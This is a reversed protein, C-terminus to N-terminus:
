GFSISSSESSLEHAWLQRSLIRHLKQEMALLTLAPSTLMTCTVVKMHPLQKFSVVTTFLLLMRTAPIAARRRHRIGGSFCVFVSIDVSLCVTKTYKRASILCSDRIGWLGVRSVLHFLVETREVILSSYHTQQRSSHNNWVSINQESKRSTADLTAFPFSYTSDCECLTQAM